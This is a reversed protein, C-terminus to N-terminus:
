EIPEGLCYSVTNLQKLTVIVAPQIRQLRDADNCAGTLKV